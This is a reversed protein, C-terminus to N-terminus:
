SIKVRRCVPMRWHPATLDFKHPATGVPEVAARADPKLRVPVIARPTMSQRQRYAPKSGVIGIALVATLGFAVTMTRASQRITEAVADPVQAPLERPASEIGSGGQLYKSEYSYVAGEDRLPREIESLTLLYPLLWKRSAWCM